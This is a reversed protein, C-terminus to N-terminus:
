PVEVLLEKLKEKPNKAKVIGSAVLIGEAGLKLAIEVDRKKKIGAGVLLPIERCIDVAKKIIEPKAVSVSIDGGILEPPEYAIYDPEIEVVKKLLDLNPVCVVSIMGLERLREVIKKITQFGLPRESHNVLSGIAGAEKISEPIIWGTRAGKKIPDVHQALVKLSTNRSIEIIDTPQVSVLIGKSVEELSKALEVAKKGWVYAKFNVIFIM